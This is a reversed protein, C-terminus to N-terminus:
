PAPLFSLDYARAPDLTEPYVGAAKMTDAFASWRGADMSGIPVDEEGTVMDRDILQSMKFDFLGASHDPNAAMVARKAPEYDGAICQQWGEASAALFAEVADRHAELWDSMGFVTAAYDRYGYDALLISVPPADMEQGLLFADETVYGQQVARADALFPASSYAYPRLQDDSFGYEAKLFQWFEMRSFNAVMIDRDKLDELTEVGQGPHAVLTQPSKQLFAAVTVGEIGELAMNMTTFSSGMGLDAAGGAVLMPVNTEPGGALLTVDLGAAEYLGNAEAQFFGCHEAQPLWNLHYSLPVLDQAAAPSGLLLVPLLRRM